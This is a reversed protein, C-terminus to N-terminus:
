RVFKSVVNSGCYVGFFAILMHSFNDVDIKNFWRMLIVVAILILALIFKRSTFKAEM